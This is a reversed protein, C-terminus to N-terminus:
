GSTEASRGHRQHGANPSSSEAGCGDEVTTLLERVCPEKSIGVDIKDGIVEMKQNRLVVFRTAHSLYGFFDVTTAVRTLFQDSSAHLEDSESFEPEYHFLFQALRQASKPSLGAMPEDLLLLFPENILARALSAYLREEQNLSVPRRGLTALGSMAMDDLLKDCRADFETPGLIDRYHYNIPLTINSRIDMNEILAGGRLISGMQRRLKQLDVPQMDGFVSQGAVIVEGDLEVTARGIGPLGLILRPVFSKGCGPPGGIVLSEGQYVTLDLDRFFTRGEVTLTVRNFQVLPQGLDALHDGKSLENM